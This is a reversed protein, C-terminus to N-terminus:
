EAAVGTLTHAHGSIVDESIDLRKAPEISTPDIARPPDISTMEEGFRPLLLAYHVALFERGIAQAETQLGAARLVTLLASVDGNKWATVPQDAFEAIIALILDGIWKDEALKLWREINASDAILGFRASLNEPVAFGLGHIVALERGLYKQVAQPLADIKAQHSPWDAIPGQPLVETNFETNFEADFNAVQQETVLFDDAGMRVLRQLMDPTGGDLAQLPTTKDTQEVIMSAALLMAKAQMSLLPNSLSEVVEEPIVAEDEPIVAEDSIEPASITEDSQQALLTDSPIEPAVESARNEESEELTEEVLFDLNVQDLFALADAVIDAEALSAADNPEPYSAPLKMSRLIPAFGHVMELWVGRQVADNLHRAMELPRAAPPLASVLQIATMVFVADSLADPTMDSLRDPQDASFDRRAALAMLEPTHTEGFRLGRLAAEAQVNPDQQDDAVVRMVMYPPLNEVQLPLPQQTRQLLALQLASLQAPLTILAAAMAEDAAPDSAPSAGNEEEPRMGGDVTLRVPAEAALLFAVDRFLPDDALTKENLEVALAAKAFEGDALQCYILLKLFFGQTARRGQTGRKPVPQACAALRDGQALHALVKAQAAYADSRAVDTLDALALVSQSDGLALFRNLRTASWSTGDASGTPAATASRHLTREMERLSPLVHHPPLRKMLDAVFALRAGLWLADGYGAELGVPADELAGLQGVQVIQSESGPLAAVSRVARKTQRAEVRPAIKAKRTSRDAARDGVAERMPQPIIDLPARMAMTPASQAGAPPAFSGILLCALAAYGIWFPFPMRRDRLNSM